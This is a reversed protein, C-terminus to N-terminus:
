KFVGMENIKKLCIVIFLGQLFIHILTVSKLNNLFYILYLSAIGILYLIIYRILLFHNLYKKPFYNYFIITTIFYVIVLFYIFEAIRTLNLLLQKNLDITPTIINNLNNSLDLTINNM